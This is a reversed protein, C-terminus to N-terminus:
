WASLYRAVYRFCYQQACLPRGNDPDPAYHLPWIAPDPSRAILPTLLAMGGFSALVFQDGLDNSDSFLVSFAIITDSSNSLQTFLTAAVATRGGGSVAPSRNPGRNRFLRALEFVGISLPFIGLLGLFNVPATGIIKGVYYAITLIVLMSALYGFVVGSRRGSYRGFLAVLLVFNDLNTAMFASAAIAIVSGIELM